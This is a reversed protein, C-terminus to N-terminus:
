CHIPSGMALQAAELMVESVTPHAHVMKAADAITAELEILSVAEAIMDTANAAVIIVGLIEGYRPDFHLRLMGDGHGEAMAKGNASLPFEVTKYEKGLAKLQHEGLGAQAMEPWTYLNVPVTHHSYPIDIGSLHNAASLGQASAAHAFQSLGNLDGVAYINEQSTQMQDNVAVFGSNLVLDFGNIPPLVAQRDSLNIVADYAVSGDGHRITQDVGNFSVESLAWSPVKKKRLLQSIATSLFPDAMPLLRDLTTLLVPEAGLSSFFQAMEIAPPGNGIIVPRHPLREQSLIEQFPFLAQDNLGNLVPLGPLSGTALVLKQGTVTRGNILVETPSNLSALGIEIDVKNKKLLYEVGKSLRKVIREARSAAKRFDFGVSRADIGTVGFEVVQLTEELKRASELLAKTPICGWNLCMGGLREKEILLTKKGLQGTRIAAVYGAPGGGIVIVDYNM